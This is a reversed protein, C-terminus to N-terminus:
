LFSTSRLVTRRLRFGAGQYGNGFVLGAAEAQVDTGGDGERGLILAEVSGNGGEGAGIALVGVAPGLEDERFLGEGAKGGDPVSADVYVGGM